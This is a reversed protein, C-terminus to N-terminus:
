KDIYYAGHEISLPPILSSQIRSIVNNTVKSAVGIFSNWAAVWHLIHQLTNNLM